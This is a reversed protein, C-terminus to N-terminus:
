PCNTQHENAWERSSMKFGYDCRILRIGDLNIASNHSPANGKPNQILWRTPWSPTQITPTPIPGTKFSDNTHQHEYHEFLLRKLESMKGFFLVAGPGGRKICYMVTGKCNTYRIRSTELPKDQYEFMNQVAIGAKRLHEEGVINRAKSDYYVKNLCPVFGTGEVQIEVGAMFGGLSKQKREFNTFLCLDRASHANTNFIAPVASGNDNLFITHHTNESSASAANIEQVMHTSDALYSDFTRHRYIEQVNRAVESTSDCLSADHLLTSHLFKSIEVSDGRDAINAFRYGHPFRRWSWKEFGAERLSDTYDQASYRRWEAKRDDSWPGGWEPPGKRINDIAGQLMFEVQAIRKREWEMREAAYEATKPVRSLFETETTSLQTPTPPWGDSVFGDIMAQWKTPRRGDEEQRELEACRIAMEEPDYVKTAAPTQMYPVYYTPPAANVPTEDEGHEQIMSISNALEDFTADNSLEQIMFISGMAEAFAAEDYTPEFIVEKQVANITASPNADPKPPPKRPTKHYDVTKHNQKEKPSATASKAAEKDASIERFLSRVNAMVEPNKSIATKCKIPSHMGDGRGCKCKLRDITKQLEQIEDSRGSVANIGEDNVNSVVRSHTGPHAEGTQAKALINRHLAAMSADVTMPLHIVDSRYGIKSANASSIIDEVTSILEDSTECRPFHGFKNEKSNIKILYNAIEPTRYFTKLIKELDYVLDSEPIAIEYTTIVRLDLKWRYIYNEWTESTKMSPMLSRFKSILESREHSTKGPRYIEKIKNLLSLLDSNLIWGKVDENKALENRRNLPLLPKSDTPRLILNILKLSCIKVKNTLETRATDISKVESTALQMESEENAIKKNLLESKAAQVELLGILSRLTLGDVQRRLMLLNIHVTTSNSPETDVFPYEFREMAPPEAFQAATQEDAEIYHQADRILYNEVLKIYEQLRREIRASKAFNAKIEYITKNTERVRLAARTKESELVQLPKNHSICESLHQSQLTNEIQLYTQIGLIFSTVDPNTENIAVLHKIENKNQGTYEASNAAVLAM